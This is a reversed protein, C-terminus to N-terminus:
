PMSIRRLRWLWNWTAPGGIGKSGFMGGPTEGAVFSVAPPVYAEVNNIAQLRVFNGSM